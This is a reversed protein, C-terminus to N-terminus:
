NLGCMSVAWGLSSGCFAVVVLFGLGLHLQVRGRRGPGWIATARWSALIDSIIYLLGVDASNASLWTTLMKSSKASDAVAYFNDTRDFISLTNQDLLYRDVMSKFVALEGTPANWDFTVIALTTILAVVFWFIRWTKEPRRAIVYLTVIMFVVYLGYLVLQVMIVMLSNQISKGVFLLVAVTEPSM